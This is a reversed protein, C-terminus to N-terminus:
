CLLGIIEAEFRNLVFNQRSLPSSKGVYRLRAWADFHPVNLHRLAQAAATNGRVAVILAMLSVIIAVRGVIESVLAYKKLTM